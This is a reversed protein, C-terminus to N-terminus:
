KHCCNELFCRAVENDAGDNRDIIFLRLMESINADNLEINELSVGLKTKIQSQRFLFFITIFIKLSFRM